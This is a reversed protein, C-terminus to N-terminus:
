TTRSTPPPAALRQGRGHSFPASEDNGCNLPDVTRWLLQRILCSVSVGCRRAAPGFAEALEPEARSTNQDM